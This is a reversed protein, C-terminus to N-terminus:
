SISNVHLCQCTMQMICLINENSMLHVLPTSCMTASHCLIRLIMESAAMDALGLMHLLLLSSGLRNQRAYLRTVHCLSKKIRPHEPRFSNANQEYTKQLCGANFNMQCADRLTGLTLWIRLRMSTETPCLNVFVLM